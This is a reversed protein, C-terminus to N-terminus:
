GGGVAAALMADHEIRIKGLDVSGGRFGEVLRDLATAAAKRGVEQKLEGAALFGLHDCSTVVVALELVRRSQGEGEGLMVRDHEGANQVAGNGNLSADGHNASEDAQALEQGRV